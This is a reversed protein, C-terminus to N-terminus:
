KMHLNLPGTVHNGSNKYDFYINWHIDTHQPHSKAWWPWIYTDEGPLDYVTPSMRWLHIAKDLVIKDAESFLALFGNTLAGNDARWISFNQDDILDIYIQYEQLAAAKSNEADQKLKACHKAWDSQNNGQLM